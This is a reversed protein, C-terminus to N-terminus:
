LILKSLISLESVGAPAKQVGGRVFTPRYEGFTGEGNTRDFTLPWLVGVRPLTMTGYLTGFFYARM